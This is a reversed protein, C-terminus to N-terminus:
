TSTHLWCSAVLKICLAIFIRFQHINQNHAAPKALLTMRSFRQIKTDSEKKEAQIQLM